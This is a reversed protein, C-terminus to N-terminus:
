AGAVMGSRRVRPTNKKADMKKATAKKKAKKGMKGYNGPM